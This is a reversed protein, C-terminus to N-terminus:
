LRLGVVGTAQEDLAVAAANPLMSAANTNKVFRLTRILVIALIAPRFLVLHM